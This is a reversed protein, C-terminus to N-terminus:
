SEVPLKIAVSIGVLQRTSPKSYTKNGEGPRTWGFYWDCTWPECGAAEAMTRARHRWSHGAVVAPDTIGISRLVRALRRGLAPSRDDWRNAPLEEFLWRRGEAAGERT